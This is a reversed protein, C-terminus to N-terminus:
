SSALESNRRRLTKGKFGIQSIFVFLKTLFIGPLCFPNSDPKAYLIKDSLADSKM